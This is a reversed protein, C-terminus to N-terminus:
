INIDSTKKEYFFTVFNIGNLGTVLIKSAWCNKKPCQIVHTAYPYVIIHIVEFFM